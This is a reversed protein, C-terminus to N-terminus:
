NICNLPSYFRVLLLSSGNRSWNADLYHIYLRQDQEETLCPMLEKRPPYSKVSIFVHRHGTNTSSSEGTCLRTRARSGSDLSYLEVQSIRIILNFLGDEFVSVVLM